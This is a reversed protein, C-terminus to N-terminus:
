CTTHQKLCYDFCFDYAQSKFIHHMALVLAAATWSPKEKPWYVQQKFQYGMWFLGDQPDQYSLVWDLLHKAQSTKNAMCLAMMLEATEAFTVWPEDNVCLCGIPEVVFDDFLKDLVQSADKKTCLGSLIPYFADMSYRAKSADFLHHQSTYAHKFQNHANRLIPTYSSLHQFAPHELCKLAACLGLYVNCNATKLYTKATNSHRDKGWYFLGCPDQLELVFNLARLFMDELGTEPTSKHNLQLELCMLVFVYSAHHCEFFPNQTTASPGLKAAWGGNFDQQHALFQLGKNAAAKQGCLLLALCCEIHNWPNIYSGLHEPIGGNEQQLSLLYNVQATYCPIYSSEINTAILTNTKRFGTHTFTAELSVKTM